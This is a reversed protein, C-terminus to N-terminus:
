QGPTSPTLNQPARLAPLRVTFTAGAGPESTVAITGQHEEVIWRAIALGLGTGEGSRSGPARYFREFIRAQEDPPIGPGQDIVQVIV